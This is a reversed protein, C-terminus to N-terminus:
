LDCRLLDNPPHQEGMCDIRSFRWTYSYRLIARSFTDGFQVYRLTPFIRTIKIICFFHHWLCCKCGCESVIKKLVRCARFCCWVFNWATNEVISSYINISISQESKKWPDWAISIKQQHHWWPSWPFSWWVKQNLNLLTVLPLEKCNWNKLQYPHRYWFPHDLIQLTLKQIAFSGGGMQLM